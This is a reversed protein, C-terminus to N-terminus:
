AMGAAACFADINHPATIVIAPGESLAEAEAAAKSARIAAIRKLIPWLQDSMECLTLTMGPMMSGANDGGLLGKLDSRLAEAETPFFTGRDDIWGPTPKAM